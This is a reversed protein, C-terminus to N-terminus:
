LVGLANIAFTLQRGKGMGDSRMFPEQDSTDIRLDGRLVVNDGLKVAPSLTGEVLTQALGTRAGDRDDFVEGRLALSVKATADWKGYLAAGMWIANGTMVADKEWGLDANVGLTVADAAKVTGIVDVVHRFNGDEGAQEPGGVYNLWASAPGIVAALQAGITKGDNSDKVNDWGNAVMVMGSLTDSFPYSIKAGTHTFPIAYGFLISRSYHDNYGDFGEILEYGMHTVFKGVDLRLGRGVDGVYSVFAQQLDFDEANGDADRFLGASAAAQPITSGATLDVRFGAEGAEGAPKQVVLEIVDVNITGDDTDFVRLQNTEEMPDNVNYLYAVSAFGNVEIADYWNIAEPKAEADVTAEVVPEAAAVPVPDSVPVPPDLAPQPVPEASVPEPAPEAPEPTQALATAPAVTALAIGLARLTHRVLM